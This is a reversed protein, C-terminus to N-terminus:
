TLGQLCTTESLIILFVSGQQSRAWTKTFLWVKIIYKNEVKLLVHGNTLHAHHQGEAAGREAMLSPATRTSAAAKVAGCQAGQLVQLSIRTGRPGYFPVKKRQKKGFM